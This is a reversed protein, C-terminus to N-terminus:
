CAHSSFSVDHKGESAITGLNDKLLIPIGHLISRKATARRESDLASAQSLASPNKELVANLSPNM